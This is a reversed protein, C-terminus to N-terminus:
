CSDASRRGSQGLRRGPSLPVMGGHQAHPRYFLYEADLMFGTSAPCFGGIGGDLVVDADVFQYGRLRPEHRAPSRWVSSREPRRHVPGVVGLEVIILDPRDNGRVLEGWLTDVYTKSTPGPSQRAATPPSTSSRPVGSAGRLAISAARRAPLPNMPVQLNLSTVEEGGYGTGDLTYAPPSSTRWRPSPWPSAAKSCTSSGGKGTNQLQELGSVAVRCAAREVGYQAASIVDQAAVPCHEMVVPLRRERKPSPCNGFFSTVVPSSRSTAANQRLRSLLADDAVSSPSSAPATRSRPRSRCWRDLSERLGIPRGIWAEPYAGVSSRTAPLTAGAPATPLAGEVVPPAQRFLIQVPDASALAHGPGVVRADDHRSVRRYEAGRIALSVPLPERTVSPSGVNAGPMGPTGGAGVRLEEHVQAARGPKSHPEPPRRHRIELLRHRTRTRGSSGYLKKTYTSPFSIPVGM